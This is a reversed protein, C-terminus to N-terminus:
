DSYGSAYKMIIEQTSVERSLEKMMKGEHMVIIRDAMGLMEPMDSSVMIIAKGDRALEDMLVYIEHKAGVDIGRTPEDFIIVKCDSFLWKAIVVKQQNGGSLNRTLQRYTPAKVGLRDCIQSAKESASKERVIGIPNSVKQLSAAITNETISRSLLLGEKKRDESIYGIGSSIAKQPSSPKYPKGYLAFSGSEYPDAGFIARMIETRGSGVLGSFGLIEGERVHFSIDQVLPTNLHNVELAVQGIPQPTHPYVSVIERNVMLRILEDSSTDRVNLTTIYQGDRFVTARDCIRFIEELRHSVYLISVGKTRLRQVIKFLYEIENNTLAASPEDMIILKADRSVAKAIEVLQQFGVTLTSVKADINISVGLEEVIAAAQARLAKRDVLGGKGPYRGLMINEAVSLYPVLNFEQYITSIGLHIAESPNLHPYTKGCIQIQGEDPQTAGTVCKIFTSKGAGNEGILAHVEGPLIDLGVGNLAVVGPYLKTLGHVSLTPTVRM